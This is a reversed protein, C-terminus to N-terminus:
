LKLRYSFLDDEGGEKLDLLRRTGVKLFLNPNLLLMELKGKSLRLHDDRRYGIGFIPCYIRNLVYIPKRAEDDRSYEFKTADLVGFTVLRSLINDAEASLEGLDNREIALHQRKAPRSAESRLYKRFTSGIVTTVEFLRRGLSVERGEVTVAGSIQSLSDLRKESITRIARNQERPPVVRPPTQQEIHGASFIESVIELLNRPTRDAINWVTTWGCYYADRRARALRDLLERPSLQDDGLYDVIDTSVYGFYELREQVIRRFYRELVARRLGSRDSGIFLVQSIDHEFFDQGVELQKGDSSIFRFTLKEASVKVCFIPNSLLMLDSIVEQVNEPVYPSGADDFLLHFQTSALQPITERLASFFHILTRPDSEYPPPASATRLAAVESMEVRIMTSVLNEVQSQVDPAVSVIGPPPVFMAVIDRLKTVDTPETLKEAGLGASVAELTTRMIKIIMLRTLLARSLERDWGERPALPKFEGQRCPFYVGFIREFDVLAGSTEPFFALAALYTSKGSGRNGSVYVNGFDSIKSMLEDFPVFLKVAVTQDTIEEYRQLRFSAPTEFHDRIFREKEVVYANYDTDGQLISCVIEFSTTTDALVRSLKLYSRTGVYKRLSLRPIFARQAALIRWVHQKFNAIDNNRCIEGPLSGMADFSIDVVKFVLGSPSYEDVLINQEHLDGHYAGIRELEYLASGVQKAFAIAVQSNLHHNQQALFERFTKGKVFPFVLCSVSLPQDLLDYIRLELYDIPLVLAPNRVSGLKRLSSTIDSSAGPRVIKLVVKRGLLIHTASFVISNKGSSLLHFDDYKRTLESESGKISAEFHLLLRSLFLRGARNLATPADSEVFGRNRLFAALEAKADFRNEDWDYRLGRIAELLDPRKLFAFLDEGQEILVNIGETPFTANM